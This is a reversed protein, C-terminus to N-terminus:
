ILADQATKILKASIGDFRFSTKPALKDIISKVTSNDVNTFNCNHTHNLM